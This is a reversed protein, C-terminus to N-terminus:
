KAEGPSVSVTTAVITSRQPMPRARNPDPNSASESELEARLAAPPLIRFLNARALRPKPQLQPRAPAASTVPDVM